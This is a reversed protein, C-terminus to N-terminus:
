GQAAGAFDIKSILGQGPVAFSLVARIVRVRITSVTAPASCQVQILEPGM